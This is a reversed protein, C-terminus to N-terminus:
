GLRQLVNPNIYEVLPEPVALWTVGCPRRRWLARLYPDFQGIGQEQGSPRLMEEKFNSATYQSINLVIFCTLALATQM